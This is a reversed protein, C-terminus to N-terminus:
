DMTHMWRLKANMSQNKIEAVEADNPENDIKAENTEMAEVAFKVEKPKKDM